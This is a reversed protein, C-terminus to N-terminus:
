WGYIDFWIVNIGKWEVIGEFVEVYEKCFM